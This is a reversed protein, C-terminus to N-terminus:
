YEAGERSGINKERIGPRWAQKTFLVDYFKPAVLTRLLIGEGIGRKISLPIQSGSFFTDPPLGCAPEMLAPLLHLAMVGVSYKEWRATREQKLLQTTPHIGMGPGRKASIMMSDDCPERQGSSIPGPTIM